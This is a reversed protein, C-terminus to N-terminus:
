LAEQRTPESIQILYLDEEDGGIDEGDGGGDGGEGADGGGDEGGDREKDRGEAVRPEELLGWEGQQEHCGAIDQLETTETESAAASLCINGTLTSCGLLKHAYAAQRTQPPIPNGQTDTM